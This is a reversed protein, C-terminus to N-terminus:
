NREHSINAEYITVLRLDLMDAEIDALLADQDHVSLDEFSRNPGLFDDAHRRLVEEPVRGTRIPRQQNPEDFRYDWSNYSM